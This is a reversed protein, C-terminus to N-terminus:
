KYEDSYYYVLINQGEYLTDQSMNNISMINHIYEQKNESTAYKDALSWLTDNDHITISTYYKQESKQNQAMTKLMNNGSLINIVLFVLVAAIVPIFLQAANYNTKLRRRKERNMM